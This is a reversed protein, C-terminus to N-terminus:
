DLSQDEVEINLSNLLELLRQPKHAVQDVYINQLDTFRKLVNIAAELDVREISEYSLTEWLPIEDALRTLNAALFPFAEKAISLYIISPYDAPSNLHFGRLFIKLDVLGYRQKQDFVNQVNGPNNLHVEKLQELGFLLTPDILTQEGTYLYKLQKLKKVVVCVLRDAILREVSKGDVIDLMTPSDMLKVQLLRPADLNLNSIGNVHELRIGKLMPLNLELDNSRFSTVSLNIMDLQELHNFSQLTLALAKSSEENLDHGHLCLHRLHSFITSAFTDFFTKIRTSYIFNQVFVGSYWRSTQKIFASPFESCCHSRVKFSDIQNRWARSVARSSLRDELSLYSFVHKFALDPLGDM